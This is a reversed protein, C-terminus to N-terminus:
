SNILANLQEAADQARKALEQLASTQETLQNNNVIIENVADSANMSYNTLEEMNQTVQQSYSYQQQAEAEVHNASDSMARSAETIRIGAQRQVEISDVSENVREATGKAEDSVKQLADRVNISFHLGSAINTEINAVIDTIKDVQAASSAALNKIEKAIVAFGKGAAGSHAAEISANMALMNTKESFNNVIQVIKQIEKSAEQIANMVKVLQQVDESTKITLDGLGNAFNAANEIGAAVQNIGEIMNQTENVATVVVQNENQLEVKINGLSAVLNGVASSTSSVAENQKTIFSGIENAKAASENAAESVKLVSENLIKAIGMTESSLNAANAIIVDLREKQDTTTVAFQNIQVKNRLTDISVIVFMTLDISFFAFGQLWTFPFKGLFQYVIDYVGFLMAISIGIILVGAYPKKQKRAAALSVYIFIIGSFVPILSLTFLTDQFTMNPISCLYLIGVVAMVVYVVIKTIKDKLKFFQRLFIVLFGISVVLCFRSLALQVSFPMFLVPSAMDYFYIAISILTISFSTSAKDKKDALAQFLFYLGLFLCIAAMMYYVTSNLFVQYIKSINYREQNIFSFKDFKCCDANTHVRIAVNLKGNKVASAPFAVVSCEVRCISPKPEITGRRGMLIGDCFFELSATTGGFQIYIEDDNLFQQPVPIESRLWFFRDSDGRLTGPLVANSWSSDNFDPQSWAKSDGAQYKWTANFPVVVSKAFLGFTMGAFILVLLVCRKFNNM